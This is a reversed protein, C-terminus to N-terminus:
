GCVVQLYPRIDSAVNQGSIGSFQEETGFLDLTNRSDRLENPYHRNCPPSSLQTSRPLSSLSPQRDDPLQHVPPADIRPERASSTCWFNGSMVTLSSVTM